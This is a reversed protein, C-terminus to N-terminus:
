STKHCQKVWMFFGKGFMGAAHIKQGFGGISGMSDCCNGAVNGFVLGFIFPDSVLCLKFDGVKLLHIMTFGM